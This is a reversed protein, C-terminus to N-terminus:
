IHARSKTLLLFDSLSVRVGVSGGLWWDQKKKKKKVTEQWVSTNGTSGRLGPSTLCHSKLTVGVRGERWHHSPKTRIEMVWGGQGLYHSIAANTYFLFCFLFFPEDNGRLNSTLSRHRTGCPPVWWEVLCDFTEEQSPHFSRLSMSERWFVGGWPDKRFVESGMEIEEASVTVTM